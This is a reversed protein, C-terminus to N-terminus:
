HNRGNTSSPTAIPSNAVSGDMPVAGVDPIIWKFTDVPIAVWGPYHLNGQSDTWEFVYALRVDPASVLPAPRDPNIVARVIRAQPKSIQTQSQAARSETLAADMSMTPVIVETAPTACGTSILGALTAALWALERTMTSKKPTM